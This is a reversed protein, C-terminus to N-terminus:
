VNLAVGLVELTRPALEYPKGRTYTVVGRRRLCRKFSHTFDRTANYDGAAIAQIEELYFRVFAEFSDAEPDYNEKL